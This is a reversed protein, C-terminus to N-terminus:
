ADSEAGSQAETASAGNHAANETEDYYPISEDFEAREADQRYLRLARHTSQSSSVATGMRRAM